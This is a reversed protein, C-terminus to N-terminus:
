YRSEFKRKKTTEVKLKTHCNPCHCDTLISVLYGAGQWSHGCETCTIVGKETRHGIPEIINRYGWEIQRNTLKPLTKSAEVVQQQFKNQPKM